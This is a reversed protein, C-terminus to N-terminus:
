VTELKPCYTLTIDDLNEWIGDNMLFRGYEYFDVNWGNKVKTVIIYQDENLTFKLETM